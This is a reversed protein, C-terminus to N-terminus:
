SLLYEKAAKKAEEWAEQGLKRFLKKLHGPVQELWTESDPWGIDGGVTRDFYTLFGMEGARLNYIAHSQGSIVPLGKAEPSRVLQWEYSPTHSWELNVGFTRHTYRLFSPNTGFGLALVEGYKLFTSDTGPRRIFWRAVERATEPEADDTWGINIGWTQDEWHLFRRTERSRLNYNRGSDSFSRKSLLTNGSRDADFTWQIFWDVVLDEPDARSM